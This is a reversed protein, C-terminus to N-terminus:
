PAVCPQSVHPKAALPQTKARAKSKEYGPPPLFPAEVPKRMGRQTPLNRPNVLHGVGSAPTGSGSGGDPPNSGSAQSHAPSPLSLVAGQILFLLAVWTKWSTFSLCGIVPM